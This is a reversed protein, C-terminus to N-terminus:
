ISKVNLFIRPKSFSIFAIILLLGISPIHNRAATGWNVTGMAWLSEIFFYTLFVFLWSSRKWGKQFILINFAMLILFGRIINECLLVVDLYKSVRWPMPEFLYQLLSKPYFQVLDLFNNIEPQFIYNARALKHYGQHVSVVDWIREFIIM